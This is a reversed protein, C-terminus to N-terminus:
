KENYLWIVQQNRFLVVFNRFIATSIYAIAISKYAIIRKVKIAILWSIKIQKTHNETYLSTSKNWTQTFCKMNDGLQSGILKYLVKTNTSRPYASIIKNYETIYKEKLSCNIPMSQKLCANEYLRKLKIVIPEFVIEGYEFQPYAIVADCNAKM